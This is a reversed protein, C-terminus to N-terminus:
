HVRLSTETILIELQEFERLLERKLEAIFRQSGGRRFDLATVIIVEDIYLESESQWLGRLPADPRLATAGRFRALLRRELDTFKERPVRSGDNFTLPLYFDYRRAARAM